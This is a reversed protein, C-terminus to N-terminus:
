KKMFKEIDSKLFMVKGKVRKYPIRDEQRLNYLSRVSINMMRRAEDITILRPSVDSQENTGHSRELRDVKEHLSRIEDLLVEILNATHIDTEIYVRKPM